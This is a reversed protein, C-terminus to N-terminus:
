DEDQEHEEEQEKEPYRGLAVCTKMYQVRILVTCINAVISDLVILAALALFFTLWPHEMVWM